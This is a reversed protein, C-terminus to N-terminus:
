VLLITPLTLHTYSVPRIKKLIESFLVGEWLNNLRSWQTVCHLGGNVTTSPLRNFEWWDIEIEKEVMGFFQLRWSNLDISPTNGYTMIPFKETAFQGPPTLGDLNM